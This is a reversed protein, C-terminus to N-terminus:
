SDSPTALKKWATFLALSATPSYTLDPRRQDLMLRAPNGLAVAHPPVDRSVVAGAAVVAGRGITVGPLIIANTAVWAYDEIVIPRAFSRWSPDRIDHSATLLKAGDNICVYDGIHLSSNVALEVRGVFTERGVRLLKMNGTTLSTDSFFSLAGVTAGRQKLKHHATIQKLLLPLCLVRKAWDRVWGGKSQRFHRDRKSWLEHWISNM